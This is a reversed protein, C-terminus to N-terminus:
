ELNFREQAIERGTEGMQQRLTRDMVLKQIREAMAEVDGRAVLFGSVADDIVEPIGGVRTGIVPKGCAMAESIVQGFAEEWRSVQCVIDAAEYVGEGFPDRILGTWTVREAIGLEQAQNMFRQRDEGDGVLVFQVDQNRALLLGGASLLDGVGKASIIWSVQVL